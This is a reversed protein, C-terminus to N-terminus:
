FNNREYNEESMQKLSDVQKGVKYLSEVVSNFKEETIFFDCKPALSCNYGKKGWNKALMRNCKPCCMNKLRSWTM